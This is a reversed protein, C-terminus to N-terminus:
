PKGTGSDCGKGVPLGQIVFKEMKVEGGSKDARESLCPQSQSHVRRRGGGSGPSALGWARKKGGESESIWPQLVGFKRGRAIKM